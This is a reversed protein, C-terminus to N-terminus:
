DFTGVEDSIDGVEQLKQLFFQFSINKINETEFNSIDCVFYINSINKGEYLKFLPCFYTFSDPEKLRM